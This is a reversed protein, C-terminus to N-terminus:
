SSGEAVTSAFFLLNLGVYSLLSCTAIRMLFISLYPHFSFIAQLIPEGSGGPGEEESESESDSDEDEM